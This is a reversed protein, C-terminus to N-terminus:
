ISKRHQQTRRRSRRAGKKEVKISHYLKARTRRKLAKVTKPDPDNATAKLCAPCLAVVNKISHEGGRDLPLIHYPELTEAANGGAPKMGCRECCNGSRRLVTEFVNKKRNFPETGNAVEKWPKGAKPKEIGLPGRPTKDRIMSPRDECRTATTIPKQAADIYRAHVTEDPPDIRKRKRVVAKKKRGDTSERESVSKLWLSHNEKQLKKKLSVYSEEAEFTVNMERLMQQIELKSLEM